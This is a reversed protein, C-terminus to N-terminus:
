GESLSSALDVSARARDLVASKVDGGCHRRVLGEIERIASEARDRHESRIAEVVLIANTTEASLKTREAEKWNWRRCVAGLDDKYIVEGPYPPREDQEGIVAVPSENESAVTLLLDGSMKDLDEGGAPVLYKLSVANYIDVLKNIGAIPRGGAIRRLLSEISSPQKKPKAGFKRYAERWPAILPHQDIPAGSLQELAAAQQQALLESVEASSGGNDIGRAVAIGVVTEPFSDFIEDTIRFRM